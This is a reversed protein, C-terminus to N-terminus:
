ISQRPQYEAAGSEKTAWADIESIVADCQSVALGSLSIPNSLIELLEKERLLSDSAFILARILDERRNNGGERYIRLAEALQKHAVERSAGKEVMLMLYASSAILPMEENLEKTISTTSVALGDIVDIATDIIGDLVLFSGSIAARRTASCSVDGENWQNGVLNEVMALYGRLVSFLSNIRESLRPNMKHPMASSGVQSKSFAEHVHGLGALLRVNLALNNAAAALQVLTAVVEFDISRPYVQSSSNMVKDDGFFHMFEKEFSSLAEGLLLSMDTATGVAGKIGRFELREVLNDLHKLAFIQEEAWVSFKKGLTTVQAPVNHTRAVMPTERHERIRKGLAALFSISKFRTLELSEKILMLEVNETVDRSTLGLHIYQHGALHNFEEIRAKVDHKLSKERESISSLDIHNIKAEYDKIAKEPIELGVKAQARMVAIWLERERKFKNEASWIKLMEPSAYRRHFDTEM